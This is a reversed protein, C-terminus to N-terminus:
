IETRKRVSQNIDVKDNTSTKSTLRELTLFNEPEIYSLRLRKSRSLKSCELLVREARKSFISAIKPSRVKLDDTAKHQTLWFTKIMIMIELSIIVILMMM